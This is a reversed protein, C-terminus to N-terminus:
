EDAISKWRRVLMSIFWMSVATFLINFWLMCVIDEEKPNFYSEDVYESHIVVMLFILPILCPVLWILINMYVNSRGKNSKELIKNIIRAILGVFLAVWFLLLIVVIIEESKYGASQMMAVGILIVVFILIGTSVFAILWQKGGTVRFSYIFVSLALAVCFCILLIYSMDKNYQYYRQVQDYGSYLENYQLFPITYPSIYDDSTNVAAVDEEAPAEIIDDYVPSTRPTNYDSIEYRSIATTKNVPFFPPNYIRKLWQEPAINVKFGHKKQLKEFEKMVALISDKQGTQLWDRIQEQCKIKQLEKKDLYDLQQSKYYKYYYNDKGFFLLSPGIYGKLTVGDRYNYETDYLNLDLTDASLHMNYPIPIPKNYESNNYRYESKDAAILMESKYLIDMAKGADQYSAVSKWRTTYGETLTYPLLCIGITIVFIMIWELYLQYTKRPYFTKFANNRSYYVMWGVLILIGILVSVFYLLGLDNGISYYYYSNNKFVTDTSLYGIGFFIANVAVLILLMPVIRINWLTPLHLLLYKQIKKIM